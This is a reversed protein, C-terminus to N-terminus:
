STASRIAAQVSNEAEYMLVGTEAIYGSSETFRGTREFGAEVSAKGPEVLRTSGQGGSALFVEETHEVTQDLTDLPRRFGKGADPLVDGLFLSSSISLLFTRVILGDGEASM